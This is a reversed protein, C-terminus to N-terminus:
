SLMDNYGYLLIYGNDNKLRHKGNKLNFTILKGSM